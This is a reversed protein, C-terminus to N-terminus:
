GDPMAREIIADNSRYHGLGFTDFEDLGRAAILGLAKLAANIPRLHPPRPADSAMHAPGFSLRGYQWVVASQEGTGGFYDTELYALAGAVSANAAFALDSSTLRPGRELWEGTGYARHLADHLDETLPLVLLPAAPTLAYLQVEPVAQQFARLARLPAVFIQIAHGM